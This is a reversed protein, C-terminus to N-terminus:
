EMIVKINRIMVATKTDIDNPTSFVTLDRNHNGIYKRPSRLPIKDIPPAENTLTRM